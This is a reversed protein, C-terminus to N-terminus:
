IRLDFYNEKSSNLNEYVLLFNTNFGFIPFITENSSLYIRKILQPAEEYFLNIPTYMCGGYDVKTINSSAKGMFQSIYLYNPWYLYDSYGPIVPLIEFMIKEIENIPGLPLGKLTSSIDEIINNSGKISSVIDFGPSKHSVTESLGNLIIKLSVSATNEDIEILVTSNLKKCYEELYNAMKITFSFKQTGKLIVRMHYCEYFDSCVEVSEIFITKQKTFDKKFDFNLKQIKSEAEKLIQEIRGDKNLAEFFLIANFIRKEVPEKLQM